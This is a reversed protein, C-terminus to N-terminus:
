REVPPDFPFLVDARRRHGGSIQWGELGVVLKRIGGKPMRVRAAFGGRGRNTAAMRLPGGTGRSVRLYLGSAGFPRGQRDVLHWTVRITTGPPAGLRVPKDLTARVDEKAAAPLALLSGLVALVAIAHARRMRRKYAGGFMIARMQFPATRLWSASSYTAYM